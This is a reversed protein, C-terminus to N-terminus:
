MIHSIGVVFLIYFYFFTCFIYCFMFIYFFSFFALAHVSVAAGLVFRYISYDFLENRHHKEKIIM